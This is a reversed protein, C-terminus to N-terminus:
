NEAEFLDSEVFRQELHMRTPSFGPVGCPTSTVGERYRESSGSTSSRVSARFARVGRPTYRAWRSRTSACRPPSTPRSPKRTSSGSLTTSATSTTSSRPVTSFHGRIRFGRRTREREERAKKAKDTDEWSGASEQTTDELDSLRAILEDFTEDPRKIRNLAEKTEDSVRFSTSM